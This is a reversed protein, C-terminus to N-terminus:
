KGTTGAAPRIAALPAADMIRHFDPMPKKEVVGTDIMWRAHMLLSDLQQQGLALSHKEQKLLLDADPESVKWAGALLRRAEDPKSAMESEARALAKMVRKVTESRSSIFDKKAVLFSNVKYFGPESLVNAGDGMSRKGELFFTHSSSYADIDGATLAAPMDRLEMFQFSVEKPNVGHKKLYLDAFTQSNTGKKVALRKGKLDKGVTIARDKRALIRTFDGSNALSAIIAFDERSFSQKVIPPEAMIGFNCDGALFTDMATKGDGLRNIVAEIGEAEFYGKELAAQTLLTINGGQCFTVKDNLKPTEQQKKSCGSVATILLTLGTVLRLIVTITKNHAMASEKSILRLTQNIFSVVIISKRM